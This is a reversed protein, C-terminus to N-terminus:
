AAAAPDQGIQATSGNALKYASLADTAFEVSQFQSNVMEILSVITGLRTLKDARSGASQEISIATALTDERIGKTVNTCDRIRQLYTAAQQDFRNSKMTPHEKLRTSTAYDQHGIAWKPWQKTGKVARVAGSEVLDRLPRGAELLPYIVNRWSPRSRKPVGLLTLHDEVNYGESAHAVASERFRDSFRTRM